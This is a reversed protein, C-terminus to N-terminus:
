HRFKSKTGLGCIHVQPTFVAFKILEVSGLEIGLKNGLLVGLEIGLLAGLEIGLLTGLLTGHKVGM